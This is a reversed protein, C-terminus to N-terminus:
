QEFSSILYLNDLKVADWKDHGLSVVLKTMLVDMISVDSALSSLRTPLTSIRIARAFSVERLLVKFM